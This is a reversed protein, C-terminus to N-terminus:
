SRYYKGNIEEWVTMIFNDITMDFNNNRNLRDKTDEVIKMCQIYKPNTKIKDFFILNIYSLVEETEEKNIFIKEKSAILDIIDIKELNEFIKNIEIYQEERDKLNLAKKVSGNQM